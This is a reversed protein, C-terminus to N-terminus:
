PPGADAPVPEPPRYHIDLPEVGGADDARLLIAQYPTFALEVEAPAPAVDLTVRRVVAERARSQGYRM